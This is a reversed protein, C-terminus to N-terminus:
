ERIHWNLCVNPLKWILFQAEDIGVVDVDNTLLFYKLPHSFPLLHFITQITRFLTVKM